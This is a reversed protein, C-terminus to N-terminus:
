LSPIIMYLSNKIAVTFMDLSGDYGNEYADRFPNIILKKLEKKRKESLPIKEIIKQYIKEGLYWSDNKNEIDTEMISEFLAKYEDITFLGEIITIIEDHTKKSTKKKAM